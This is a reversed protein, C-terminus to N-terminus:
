AEASLDFTGNFHGRLPWISNIFQNITEINKSQRCLASFLLGMELQKCESNVDFKEADKIKKVQWHHCEVLGWKDPLDSPSILNPPTFYFKYTGVGQNDVRFSKKMDRKFDGISTKCEVLISNRGGDKWGIADPIEGGAQMEYLVVPCKKSNRLWKSASQVLEKHTSNNYRIKM